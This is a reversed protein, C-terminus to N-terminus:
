SRVRRSIKSPTMSMADVLMGDVLMADVSDVPDDEIPGAASAICSRATPNVLQWTNGARWLAAPRRPRASAPSTQGHREEDSMEIPVRETRCRDDRARQSVEDAAGLPRGAVAEVADPGTRRGRPRLCNRGGVSGGSVLRQRIDPQSRAARLPDRHLRECPDTERSQRPRCSGSPSDSTPSDAFTSRSPPSRM